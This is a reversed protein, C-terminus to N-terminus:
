AANTENSVKEATKAGEQIKKDELKLEAVKLGTETYFKDRDLDLKERQMDEQAIAKGEELRQKLGDLQTKAADLQAKLEVNLMQARAREVEASALKSQFDLQTQMQKMQEEQAAKQQQAAQQAAQQGEQSKPDVFYGVASNLGSFKCFDDYAKFSTNPNVLLNLGPQQTLALQRDLVERLAMIKREHNGTGTGVRVTCRSRMPWGAPNIQFWQGRFKFDRIADLHSTCLNRIKVCLPKVATEAVIRIILGVLEEKASMLRELGQSGVREGLHHNKLEGEPSVGSRGARIQDMYNMMNFADQGVSPTVLPEIAGMNKVRVVGGPRSVMLDSMTVQNELVKHRQNNQLYINDLTNRLLSTKIDQIQKLRDYISMGRWKHSMLIATGNIWPCYDITEQDILVSPTAHGGVTIKVREAIGDDDLDAFMYCEAINIEKTSEDGEVDDSPDEGQAAFRYSSDSYSDDSDAEDLLKQIIKESVGEERLESITKTMLHATFRASDMDVSNHDSNCRFDGPDVSEVVVRGETATIAVKAKFFIIPQGTEPHPEEVEEYEIIEANPQSAVAGMQEPTLGSYNKYKTVDKKEQYFVKIFGNNQLLLDTVLQHLIVFGNNEKMLVEYVYQSELDAQLEDEPHIPDFIVVENNQTFSKMIQPKIWEIADAVDTSVVQSRGPQEDGRANGLYYDLPTEFDLNQESSSLESSVVRLIEEDKM